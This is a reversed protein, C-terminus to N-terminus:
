DVEPPAPGVRYRQGGPRFWQVAANDLLRLRWGEEHVLRHHFGCLLVLNALDTRGGRSWWTVHHADSYRRRGCGPFRCTRDRRRLARVMAASPTRTARGLTLPVGAGDDLSVQV